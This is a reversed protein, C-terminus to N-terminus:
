HLQELTTMVPATALRTQSNRQFEHGGHQDTCLSLVVSIHAAESRAFPKATWRTQLGSSANRYIASCGGATITVSECNRILAKLPVVNMLATRLWLAQAELRIM